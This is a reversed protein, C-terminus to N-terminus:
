TKFAIFTKLPSARRTSPISHSGITSTCKSTFLNYLNNLLQEEKEEKGRREM